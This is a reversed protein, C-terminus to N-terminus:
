ARTAEDAPLSEIDFLARAAKRVVASGNLDDGAGGGDPEFGDFLGLDLWATLAAAHARYWATVCRRGDRRVREILADPSPNDNTAPAALQRNSLATQMADAGIAAKLAAVAEAQIQATLAAANVIAGAHRILDDRWGPPLGLVPMDAINVPALASPPRLEYYECVIAEVRWVFRRQATVAALAPSDAALGLAEAIRDRRLYALPTRLWQGWSPVQTAACSASM